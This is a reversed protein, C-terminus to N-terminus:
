CVVASLGHPCGMFNGGIGFRIHAVGYCRVVWINDVGCQQANGIGHPSTNNHHQSSSLTTMLSLQATSPSWRLCHCGDFSSESSITLDVGIISLATM